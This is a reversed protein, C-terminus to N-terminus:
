TAGSHVGVGGEQGGVRQEGCQEGDGGETTRRRDCHPVGGGGGSDRGRDRAGAAAVVGLHTNPHRPGTHVGRQETVRAALVRATAPTKKKM